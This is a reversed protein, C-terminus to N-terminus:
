VAYARVAFGLSSFNKEVDLSSERTRRNSRGSRVPLILRPFIIISGNLNPNANGRENVLRAAARLFELLSQPMEDLHRFLILHEPKAPDLLMILPPICSPRLVFFRCSSRLTRSLTLCSYAAVTPPIRAGKIM